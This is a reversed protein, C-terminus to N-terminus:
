PAALAAFVIGILLQMPISYAPRNWGIRLSAWACVLLAPYLFVHQLVRERWPAFLLESGTMGAFGANMTHAYLVNSSTVYIWFLTLVGLLPLLGAGAGRSENMAMPM